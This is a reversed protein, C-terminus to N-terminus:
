THLTSVHKAASIIDCTEGPCSSSPLLARTESHYQRDIIHGHRHFLCLPHSSVHQFSLPLLILLITLFHSQIYLSLIIFPEKIHEDIVQSTQQTEGKKAIHRVQDTINHAQCGLSGPQTCIIPRSFVMNDRRHISYACSSMLINRSDPLSRNEQRIIIRTM